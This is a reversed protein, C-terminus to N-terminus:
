PATSTSRRAGPRRTHESSYYDRSFPALYNGDPGLHNYVVDLLVALGLGTRRTSSGDCTTPGHRLLPGPRVPRRRRLGLRPRRPLRGGADARDGDRGAGRPRGAARGRRRLDRGTTFTGVHLEYLILNEAPVGRCPADSWAFTTPDVVESPGHVGEPQFRSAPDPFPGRGDLLYQYRLGARAGALHISHYGEEDKTLLDRGGDWVIRVNAIDPAWVRFRAGKGELWAGLSPRWNM